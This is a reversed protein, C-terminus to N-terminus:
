GSGWVAKAQGAVFVRGVKGRPGQRSPSARIQEAELTEALSVGGMKLREPSHADPRLHRLLDHVPAPLSRPPKVEAGESGTLSM